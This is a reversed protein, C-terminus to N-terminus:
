EAGREVDVDRLLLGVGDVAGLADVLVSLDLLPDKQGRWAKSELAAHMWEGEGDQEVAMQGGAQVGREDVDGILEAGLGNGRRARCAAWRGGRNAQVLNEVDLARQGRWLEGVVTNADERGGVDLGRNVVLLDDVRDAGIGQGHAQVSNGLGHRGGAGHRGSRSGASSAGDLVPLELLEGPAQLLSELGDGWCALLM